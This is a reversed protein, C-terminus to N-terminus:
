YINTSNFFSPANCKKSRNMNIYLSLGNEKIIVYYEM